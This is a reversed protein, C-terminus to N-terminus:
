SRVGLIVGAVACCGLLAGLVAETTDAGLGRARLRQSQHRSLLCALVVAALWPTLPNV